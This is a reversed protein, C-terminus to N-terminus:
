FTCVLPPMTSYFKRVWNMLENWEVDGLLQKMSILYRGMQTENFRTYGDITRAIDNLLVASNHIQDAENHCENWATSGTSMQYCESLKNEKAQFWKNAHSRFCAATGPELSQSALWDDFTDPSSYAQWFIYSVDITV